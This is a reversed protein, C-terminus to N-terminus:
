EARPIQPVLRIKKGKHLIQQQQKRKKAQPM